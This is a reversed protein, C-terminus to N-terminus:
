PELISVWKPGVAMAREREAFPFPTCVSGIGMTLGKWNPCSCGQSVESIPCEAPVFTGTARQAQVEAVESIAQKLNYISLPLCTTSLDFQGLSTTKSAQFKICCTHALHARNVPLLAFQFCESEPGQM